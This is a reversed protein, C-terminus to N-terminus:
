FKELLTAANSPAFRLVVSELGERRIELEMTPTYPREFVVLFYEGWPSIYPVNQAILADRDLKKISTPPKNDLWLSYIPNFLGRKDPDSSDQAIFMDVLFFTGDQATFKEPFATNLSTALVVAETRLQNLIEGKRTASIYAETQADNRLAEQYLQCAGFTTALLCLSFVLVYKQWIQQM